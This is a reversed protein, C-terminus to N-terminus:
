LGEKWLTDQQSMEIIYQNAFQVIGKMLWQWRQSFLLVFALMIWHTFLIRFLMFLCKHPGNSPESISFYKYILAWTYKSAYLYTPSCVSNMFPLNIGSSINWCFAEYNAMNKSYSFVCKKKWKMSSTKGRIFSVLCENPFFYLLVFHFVFFVIHTKMNWFHPLNQLIKRSCKM